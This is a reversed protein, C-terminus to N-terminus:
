SAVLASLSERQCFRIFGEQDHGIQHVHVHDLGAEESRAAASALEQPRREEFSLTYGLRAM